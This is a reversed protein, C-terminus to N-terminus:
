EFARAFREVQESAQRAHLYRQTTALDSHGMAEKISLVDVGARALLSGYTHRLDHFRLPRLEAADRARKVRATLSSPDLARGRWTCFVLEGAATFDGRERLRALAARAQLVLPVHRVKGGKTGTEIGDSLTREVTLVDEGVDRWRLARLEGQRLGTYAAVRVLEADQADEALEADNAAAGRTRHLGAALAQALQEVEAVTYTDLSARQPERRKDTGQVPNSPLGARRTGYNFVALLLARRKNITRPTAGSEALVDLLGEIEATTIETAPRDGLARMVHGNVAGKPEALAYGHDALTSPKAGKVRELWDMYGRAIERFTSGPEATAAVHGAIIERARDHAAAVDFVGEPPRGRRPKGDGTVWAPGIRRKVLRGAPWRFYIDYAPGGSLERVQLSYTPLSPPTM